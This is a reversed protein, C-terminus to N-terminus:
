KGGGHLTTRFAKYAAVIKEESAGSHKEALKGAEYYLVEAAINLAKAFQEILHDSDPQRRDHEIDNLYQPSITQGDEKKIKEALDKLSFGAKKRAEAIRKGFSLPSESQAM